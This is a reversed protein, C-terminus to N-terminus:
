RKCTASTHHKNFGVGHTWCYYVMVNNNAKAATPKTPAPAPAPPKAPSVPKGQAANAGHYGGTKATYNGNEHKKLVNL